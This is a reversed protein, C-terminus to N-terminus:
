KKNKVYTFLERDVRVHFSFKGCVLLNKLKEKREVEGPILIGLHTCTPRCSSLSTEVQNGYSCLISRAQSKRERIQWQEVLHIWKLSCVESIHLLSFVVDHLLHNGPSTRCFVNGLFKEFNVSFYRHPLKTRFSNFTKM